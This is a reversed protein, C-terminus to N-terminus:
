KIRARIRANAPSRARRVPLVDLSPQADQGVVGAQELNAADQLRCGAIGAAGQLAEVLGCEPTCGVTNVKM